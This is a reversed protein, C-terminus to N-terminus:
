WVIRIEEFGDLQYKVRGRGLLSLQCFDDCKFLDGRLILLLSDFSWKRVIYGGLRTYKLYDGRLDYHIQELHHPDDALCRYYELTEGTLQCSVKRRYSVGLTTRGGQWLPLSLDMNTRYFVEAPIKGVGSLAKGLDELPIDIPFLNNEGQIEVVFGDPPGL